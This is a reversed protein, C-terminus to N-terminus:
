LFPQRPSVPPGALSVRPGSQPFSPLMQAGLCVYGLIICTHFATWLDQLFNKSDGALIQHELNWGPNRYWKSKQPMKFLYFPLFLYACRVNPLVMSIPPCVALLSLRIWMFLLTMYGMGHWHILSHRLFFIAAVMRQCCVDEWLGEKSVELCDPFPLRKVSFQM